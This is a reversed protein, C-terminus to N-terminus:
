VSMSVLGPAIALVALSANRYSRKQGLAQPSSALRVQIVRLRRQRCVEQLLYRREKGCVWVTLLRNNKLERMINDERQRSGFHINWFLCGRSTVLFHREEIDCAALLFWASHDELLAQFLSPFVFAWNLTQSVFSGRFSTKNLSGLDHEIWKALTADVRYRQRRPWPYRRYMFLTLYMVQLIADDVYYKTQSRRWVQLEEVPYISKSSPRRRPLAMFPHACGVAAAQEGSLFSTRAMLRLGLRHTKVCSLLVSSRYITLYQLQELVTGGGRGVLSNTLMAVSGSAALAELFAELEPTPGNSLRLYNGVINVLVDLNTGWGDRDQFRGGCPRPYCGPGFCGPGCGVIHASGEPVDVSYRIPGTCCAGEVYDPYRLSGVQRHKGVGVRELSCACTTARAGSLLISTAVELATDTKLNNENRSINRFAAYFDEDLKAPDPHESRAKQHAARDQQYEELWHAFRTEAEGYSCSEYFENWYLRRYNLSVANSDYESTLYCM